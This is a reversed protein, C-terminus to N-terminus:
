PAAVSEWRLREFRGLKWKQYPNVRVVVSDALDGHQVFQLVEVAPVLLRERKSGISCYIDVFDGPYVQGSARDGHEDWQGIVQYETRTFGLALVACGITLLILAARISFRFRSM